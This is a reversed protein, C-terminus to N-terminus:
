DVVKGGTKFHAARDNTPMVDFQARTIAKGGSQQTAVPAAPAGNGAAESVRGGESLFRGRTDQPMADFQARTVTSGNRAGPGPAAEGGDKRQIMEKNPYSDILSGLAEEFTAVEGHRTRSYMPIDGKDYAVLQGKDIRFSDGFFAAAVDHPIKLGGAVTSTKFHEGVLMKMATPADFAEERGNSHVYVPKGDRVVAHGDKTLKLKM